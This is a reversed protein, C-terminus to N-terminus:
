ERMSRGELGSLLRAIVQRRQPNLGYYIPVGKRRTELILGKSVLLSV